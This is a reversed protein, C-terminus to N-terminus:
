KRFLVMSKPGEKVIEKCITSGDWWAYKAKPDFMMVAGRPDPHTINYLFNMAMNDYLLKKECWIRHRLEGDRRYFEERIEVMGDRM